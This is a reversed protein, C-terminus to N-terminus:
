IVLFRRLRTESRGGSANRPSPSLFGDIGERGSAPKLVRNVRSVIVGDIKMFADAIRGSLQEANPGDIAAVLVALEPQSQNVGNPVFGPQQQRVVADGDEPQTLWSVFNKFLAM